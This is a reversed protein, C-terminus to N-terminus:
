GLLLDVTAPKPGGHVWRYVEAMQRGVEPWRHRQRVLEAGQWGIEENTEASNRLFEGLAAALEGADPEIQGGAGDAEVEPMNCQRTVIVPLGMGMAELVGVSLGESHSPLVFCSAASLASWKMAGDLMGTFHVQREVRHARVQAELAARTGDDNPGALM